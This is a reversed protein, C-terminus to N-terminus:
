RDTLIKVFRHSTREYGLHEYFRHAEILRLNSTVEVLGCGRDLLRQEAAAVLARGISRGWARATVILMTIRGVPAPRHLVPTLQWPVCGLIDGADDAVLPPKDTDRLRPLKGEIDGATLPVGSETAQAAVVGGDRQTAERVILM